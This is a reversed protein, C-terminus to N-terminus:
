GNMRSGEPDYACAPVIRAPYRRGLDWVTVVEGLREAGGEFMALAHPHGQTPSAISSTVWGLSRIPRDAGEAVLHGGVPLVRDDLSALGVLQRRDPRQGDPRLCSRRGVFDSRKRHVPAAFGVDQPMTTGDTDTGVHLFGKETRMVMLAEVGFPQLGFSGGAAALRQMLAAGFRWPVAIEFSLEGTFSVRQMRCPVGEIRGERVSLHPFAELGLDIDCDLTELIARSHPGALNMVAWCTTVDELAVALDVWECQLWERMMATVAAAHGSTTGVLFRDPALRAVVGDDFVIGHENLMLGYRCRGPALTSMTGVYLRDLLTAADPGAVEIKGLPSADFLGAAQRVALVERAVAECEGEGSRPYCVPRMWGGYEEFSAGLRGHVPAASLNRRPALTEGRRHAAFLGIPTPDYPPRFRTTGVEAPANGMVEGMIALGNVNSTKGQDSAMGLTTYRKLHEVSRYAERHALAVDAATVDNQFDVFARPSPAGDKGPVHWLPRIEDALDGAAAGISQASQPQMAPVFTALAEDWALNGGAQSHLHVAPNFGGSILLTDCAISRASASPRPKGDAGLPVAKIRAVRRSGRAEAVAHGALVPIALADAEALLNHPPCERADVIAAVKVGAAACDLAARWARDNNTALVLQRGPAAAFRELYSAGAGALMVGPLDNGAFVLPREIAGTALIVERARLKWLRQRPGARDVPALHDTLREALTIFDHDHYGIAVSRLQMAVHPMAALETVAQTVWARAPQGDIMDGLGIQGGLCAAAEVLLLKKGARGASLAAKLGAIGGGVILLDVEAHHQLYTDPDPEDPARGLGAARRILPEFLHWDPRMFTKYYFAAPIFRKALGLVALADREASPWANVPRAELGDFLEVETAKLNPLTHAGSGVQVIANPEDYGAGLLGRPRHYKFSRGVIDIGNALLASALTDGAFGTMARGCWRFALSRTRDIAAGAVRDSPVRWGSM